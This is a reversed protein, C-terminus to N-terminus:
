INYVAEVNGFLERYVFSHYTYYMEMWVDYRIPYISTVTETRLSQLLRQAKDFRLGDFLYYAYSCPRLKLMLGAGNEPPGFSCFLEAAANGDYSAGITELNTLIDYVQCGKKFSYSGIVPCCEGNRCMLVIECEKMPVDESPQRLKEMSAGGNPQMVVEMGNAFFISAVAAATGLPRM